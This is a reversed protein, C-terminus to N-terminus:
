GGIRENRRDWFPERRERKLIKGAGVEPPPVDSVEVSYVNEGGSVIM